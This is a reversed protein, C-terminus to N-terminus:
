SSRLRELLARARPCSAEVFGPNIRALLGFSTKGKRYKTGCRATARALAKYVAKKPVAELDASVPLAAEAFDPGFFKRLTDRDALFWTEMVQVMLFAQEAGAGAPRKWPPEQNELHEWVSHQESVETESDVLLLPTTGDEEARVATCFSIFTEERGGGRFVRPLSDGLGAARLFGHWSQRFRVDLEKSIPSHPDGGGEIFLEFIVM